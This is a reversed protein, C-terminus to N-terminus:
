ALEESDVALLGLFEGFIRLNKKGKRDFTHVIMNHIRVYEIGNSLNLHERVGTRQTFRERHEVREFRFQGFRDTLEIM